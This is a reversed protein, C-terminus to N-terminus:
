ILIKNEDGANDKKGKAYSVTMPKEKYSFGNLKEIIKPADTKLVDVFSYGFFIRVNGVNEREVGAENKLLEYLENRNLKRSKGVGFFLSVSNQANVNSKVAEQSLVRRKVSNGEKESRSSKREGRGELIKSAMLAAVYSRRMLPVNKKFIRKITDLKEVEKENNVEKLADTFITAYLKEDIKESM